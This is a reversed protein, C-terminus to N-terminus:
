VDHDDGSNEVGIKKQVLNARVTLRRRHRVLRVPWPRPGVGAVGFLGAPYAQTPDSRERAPYEM